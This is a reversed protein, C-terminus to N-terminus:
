SRLKEDFFVVWCFSFVFSYHFCRFSLYYIICYEKASWDTGSIVYHRATGNMNAGIDKLFWIDVFLTSELLVFSCFLFYPSSSFSISTIHVYWVRALLFPVRTVCSFSRPITWRKQSYRFKPGEFHKFTRGTIFNFLISCWTLNSLFHPLSLFSTIGMLNSMSCLFVNMEIKVM